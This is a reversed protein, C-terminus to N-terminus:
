RTSSGLKTVFWEQDHPIARPAGDAVPRGAISSSRTMPSKDSIETARILSASARRVSIANRQGDVGGFVQWAFSRTQVYADEGSLGPLLRSAGFDHGFPSLTLVSASAQFAMFM